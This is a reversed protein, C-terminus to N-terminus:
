VGQLNQGNDVGALKREDEDRLVRQREDEHHQESFDIHKATILFANAVALLRGCRLALGGSLTSMEKTIIYDNKLENHLADADKIKVVWGLAKTSFSLFSDILTETTKAGVYTEYRKYHRIVDKDDLRKVQDHTLNVGIAEKCKGTSVLIALQERHAPIDPGPVAAPSSTPEAELLNMVEEMVNEEAM